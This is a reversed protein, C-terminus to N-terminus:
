RVSSVAGRALQLLTVEWVLRPKVYRKLHVRADELTHLLEPAVTGPSSNWYTQQLFDLLWLQEPVDLATAIERAFELAEKLTRPLRRVKELLDPPITQLQNWAAIATGPSGQALALISPRDLIEGYGSDRLVQAMHDQSLRYFPIQQCRSVLTTLLSQASRALLILTARGPEELTKLLGNGAAEGMTDAQELVVVKRRAELPPSGLFRGIQRIQELRIQPASKRSLGKEAAEAATYLEKKHLYTPEVWLFDPHNALQQRPEDLLRYTFYRAAIARGIGEAGAFLYAPAIRDRAIAADLFRLAATQGIPQPPVTSMTGTSM